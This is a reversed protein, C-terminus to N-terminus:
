KEEEELAKRHAAVIEEQLNSAVAVFGDFSSTFSARGQTLSRLSNSFGTMEKQPVKATVKQYMGVSDMGMIMARRTQLEGMVDGMLAEPVSIELQDVPEMLKPQADLVANSFSRAGAIKFSIDNSDVPHMKGDFLMVRVDRVYSGSLPGNAMSEMIGKLVSPIFRQDIVGGVICNYFVLKGGWELAIEEKGRISFGEPEAMGEFYPEIKIRVEAFQGAGGSQKKHRFFSIAPKQVTERYAVKVDEFHVGIGYENKLLYDFVALHLDGQCSFVWQKLEKSFSLDYTPDQSVIKKVVETLKDEAAKNDAVLAKRVKAQPFVMPIIKVEFGKEHLTTNTEVDKLKIIAGIDGAVLKDVPNRKAGDVIFLNNIHEEKGTNVDILSQGTSLEGTIVKVYNIKGINPEYQTKFVFASTPKSGDYSLEKGNATNFPPKDVASPAVNDIFGMLRGSGMNKAGSLCFVPFFSYHAMGSRIGDKLEEENLTGKDFFIEMLSEENEAAKEVLENHLQGAKEKESDPIELKEPKGGEDKFVYMKMKLVDIIAIHGNHNYPYQIQVVNNGYHEKLSALSKDFDAYSHDIQNIAFITPKGFKNIYNWIVETGPEVGHQANIVMVITDAAKVGQVIEGIFDDLGPTDLINIKYNRWETHVLTTFVSMNREKELRHCDSVTNGEEISGRRTILGAEFIMSETLTTKGSNKAGVFAINKIHKQDFTQM